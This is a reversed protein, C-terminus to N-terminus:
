YSSRFVVNFGNCAAEASVSAHSSHFIHGNEVFEGWVHLTSNQLIASLITEQPKLIMFREGRGREREM